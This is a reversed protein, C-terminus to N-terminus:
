AIPLGANHLSNTVTTSIMLKLVTCTFMLTVVGARRTADGQRQAYRGVRLYM